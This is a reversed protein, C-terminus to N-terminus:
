TSSCRLLSALAAFLRLPCSSIGHGEDVTDELTFWALVGLVTILSSFLVIVTALALTGSGLAAFVALVAVSSFVEGLGRGTELIGFARGQEEPPAWGRTVRIMAGWFLLSITVGWFAHLILM